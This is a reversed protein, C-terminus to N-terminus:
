LWVQAEPWVDKIVKSIRQVVDERMAHEEPTPKMYNYFDEIEQHLGIIGTSYVNRVRWPTGDYKKCLHPNESLNFTSAPNDSIHVRKSNHIHYIHPFSGNPLAPGHGVNSPVPKDGEHDTANSSPDNVSTATTTSSNTLGNSLPIYEPQSELHHVNMKARKWLNTYMELAPGEQEPQYWGLNPDM